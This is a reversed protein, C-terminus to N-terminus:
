VEEEQHEGWGRSQHPVGKRRQTVDATYYDKRNSVTFECYDYGGSLSEVLGAIERAVPILDVLRRHIEECTAAQAETQWTDDCIECKWPKDSPKPM